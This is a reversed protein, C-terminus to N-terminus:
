SRKRGAVGALGLLGSGMLWIAAPVPVAQVEPRLNFNANFGSFPGDIMPTGPIGNGDDDTSAFLWETAFFAVCEPTTLDAKRGVGICPSDATELKSTTTGDNPGFAWIANTDWVNVVDINVSGNWDFLMHAGVQGTGVTMTMPASVTGDCAVNSIKSGDPLCTEFTYTGPGFVSVDHAFWPVGFFPATSSITMNVTATDVSTNFTGDWTASVLNTGGVRGGGPDLMTFNNDGAGLTVAGATSGWLALVAILSLHSKAHNFTM